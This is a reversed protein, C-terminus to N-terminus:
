ELSLSAAESPIHNMTLLKKMCGQRIITIGKMRYMVHPHVLKTHAENRVVMAEASKFDTVPSLTGDMRKNNSHLGGIAPEIRRLSPLSQRDKTAAIGALPAEYSM